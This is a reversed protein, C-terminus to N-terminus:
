VRGAVPVSAGTVASADDSLLFSIVASIKESPVWRSFDAEPMDARNTPTDIISPMVANVTVGRDKLEEALSETLRLVGSKSAAYAAMGVDAKLAALAGVNVIRGNGTEILHSLAARCSVVATRVNMEYMRDWTKLSGTEVPEWTFGGAVNVVGHIAGLAERVQEYAATCASEDGLDVAGIAISVGPPLAGAPEVARDILAVRAGDEILRRALARGLAGFGGTVVISRGELRCTM